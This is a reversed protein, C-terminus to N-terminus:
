AAGFNLINEEKKGDGGPPGRELYAVGGVLADGEVEGLEGPPHCFRGEVGGSSPAGEAERAGDNCPEPRAEEGWLAARAAQLSPTAELRGGWTRGM